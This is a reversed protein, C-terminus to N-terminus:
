FFRYILFFDIISHINLLFSWNQAQEIAWVYNKMSYLIHFICNEYHIWTDSNILKPTRSIWSNKFISTYFFEISSCSIPLFSLNLNREHIIKISNLIHLGYNSLKNLLELPITMKLISLRVNFKCFFFISKFRSKCIKKKKKYISYLIILIYKLMM